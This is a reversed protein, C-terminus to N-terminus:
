SQNLRAYLYKARHNRFFAFINEVQKHAQLRDTTSQGLQYTDKTTNIYM